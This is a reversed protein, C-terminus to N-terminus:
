RTVTRFGPFSKQPGHRRERYANFGASVLLGRTKPCISPSGQLGQGELRPLDSLHM